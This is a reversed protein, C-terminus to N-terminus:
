WTNAAHVEAAQTVETLRLHGRWATCNTDSEEEQTGLGQRAGPLPGALSTVLAIAGCKSDLPEEVEKYIQRLSGDKM